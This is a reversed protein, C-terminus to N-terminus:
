SCSDLLAGLDKSRKYVNYKYMYVRLKGHINNLLFFMNVYRSMIMISSQCKPLKILSMLLYQQQDTAPVAWRDLRLDQAKTFLIGLLNPQFRFTIDGYVSQCSNYHVSKVLLFSFIKIHGLLQVM